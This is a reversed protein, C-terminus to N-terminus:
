FLRVPLAHPGGGEIEITGAINFNYSFSSKKFNCFIRLKLMM